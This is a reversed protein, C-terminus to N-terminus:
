AEVSRITRWSPALEQGDSRILRALPDEESINTLALENAQILRALPDEEFTDPSVAANDCGMTLVFIAVLMLILRKNKM